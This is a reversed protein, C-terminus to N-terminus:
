RGSVGPGTRAPRRAEVLVAATRAPVSLTGTHEDWTTARVVPDVGVRQVPSLEYSRGALEDVQETVLDPTANLAVLVGDLVPDAPNGRRDDVHLLVVGPTAHPGSGPVSVKELIAAPDGLRLLRTSARLRLLDRAGARGRAIQEPSPRLDARALFPAYESWLGENRWAPPLGRGFGNDTATFDLLNFWDGSDYSDVDLSKSRLLDTGAHWLMPTQGLATTALALTTMRVRADMSTAPALKLTLLDFLTHNDHADVYSVVEEPSDAYGAQEGRYDIEEGRQVRGASTLFAFDRLNGAMGLRVLDTLHALEAYQEGPPRRDTGNPDTALGTGFGQARISGHDAASGGQVADRLRDSFTGIGTGGLAGQRAQVFIRDNGVEGFNWGEGYLYIGRGDIGHEEPMLADLAARVALMTARSHHGMLDFRFGGVRYHRAWSVVSDVMLKEAMARETAVNSCCTSAHVQGAADLRHYYGPVIRDLVSAPHQGHAVTHNYVQDLVVHLGIRHLAGVMTRFEAVRAGGDQHGASAYSGEPAQYHWPDYGWNFGDRARVAGVADQQELGDPAFAALDGEPTRQEARDEPVSAFDFTPLLHVSDLGAAALDRLHRVGEGEGDFALYTGRHEPPVTADGVSFDRVHLEYITRDVHRPFPPVPTGEWLGPRYEPDELDVLVSHRSGTTLAVSYPDTVENGVVAGLAPVYVQVEYRYPLDAWAPRGDITWAGDGSPRMSLRVPAADPGATFLLLAVARATPAWLTLSPAGDGDWTAGLARRTAGAAYLDDLVAGIQLGTRLLVGASGGGRRAVLQLAGTLLRAVDDLTLGLPRAASYGRLHPFTEALDAGIGGPIPALETVTAGVLSEAAAEPEPDLVSWLELGVWAGDDPLLDAPYAIVDATLWLARSEPAVDM